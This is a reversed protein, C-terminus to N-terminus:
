SHLLVFYANLHRKSFSTSLTLQHKKRHKTSSFCHFVLFSREILYCSTCIQYQKARKSTRSQLEMFNRFWSPISGCIATCACTASFFYNLTERQKKKFIQAETKKHLFLKTQRWHKQQIIKTMSERFSDFHMERTILFLHCCILTTIFVM